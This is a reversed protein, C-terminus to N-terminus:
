QESERLDIYGFNLKNDTDDTSGEASATIDFIYNGAYPSVIGSVEEGDTAFQLYIETVIEDPVSDTDPSAFGVPPAVMVPNASDDNVPKNELATIPINFNIMGTWSPDLRKLTIRAKTSDHSADLNQTQYNVRMSNRGPGYDINLIEFKQDIEEELEQTFKAVILRDSEVHVFAYNVDSPDYGSVSGSSDPLPPMWREFPHDPDTKVAWYTVVKGGTGIDAPYWGNGDYADVCEITAEPDDNVCEFPFSGPPTREAETRIIKGKGVIRTTVTWWQSVKLQAQCSAVQSSAGDTVTVTGTVTRASPYTFVPNQLISQRGDSFVWAYSLPGAVGTAVASWTATGGVSIATPNVGCAVIFGEKTTVGSFDVWGVNESGWAYGSLQDGSLTVGGGALPGGASLMGGGMKLWGDWGGREADSKLAGSCGSAFVSCFRAWGTIAGNALRASQDAGTPGRLSPDFWLWGVNPSWAYGSLVGASMSVGFSRSDSADSSMKIWGINSSWAYGSLIAYGPQTQAKASQSNFYIGGALVGALVLAVAVYSWLSLRSTM